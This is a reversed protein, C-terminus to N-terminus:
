LVAACGDARNDSGAEVIGEDRLVIVQGRGFIWREGCGVTHGRERLARVVEVSLEPEVLVGDEGMGREMASFPGTVRFRPWDLAQQADLGGDVLKRIVQVHGQPQMFSGMVGLAAFLGGDGRTILAPIITHYPKKGGAAANPHGKVGSFNLARNNLTFGTGRPVLGTGFGQYNSQVMSVANGDADVVCFQVTGGGPWREGESGVECKRDANIQARLVDAYKKSALDRTRDPMVSPDAIVKAADAYALRLADIMVHTATGEDHLEDPDYSDLINLAMLAVVGHTPPGTEHVVYGRFSTSVSDHRETVHKALDELTLIGGMARVVAVIASAVPGEYFGKKGFRAVRRLTAALGANRFVEGARPARFGDGDAVMLEKGGRAALLQAESAKWAEATIPAVPFGREALEIAPQLVDALSMNGSGHQEIMDEWLAVAGPVTVAHPSSLPVPSQLLAPTLAAPAAGNGHLASVSRSSATYLLAFADGGLGNSCPETVALAAAMAVAADVASGGQILARLAASTALPQSCAVAARGFVAQRSPAPPSTMAQLDRTDRSWDDHM